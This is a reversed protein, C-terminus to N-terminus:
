GVRVISEEEQIVVTEVSGTLPDFSSDVAEAVNLRAVATYGGVPTSRRIM